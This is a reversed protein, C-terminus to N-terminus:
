AEPQAPTGTARPVLRGFRNVPYAQGPGQQPKCLVVIWVGEAASPAAFCDKPDAAHGARAMDQMYIQAYTNIVDTESVHAAIWGLRLINLGMWLTLVGLPLWWMWRPM